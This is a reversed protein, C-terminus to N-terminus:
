ASAMAEAPEAGATSRVLEALGHPRPELSADADHGGDWLAEDMAEVARLMSPTWLRVVGSLARTVLGV